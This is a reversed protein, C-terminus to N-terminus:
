NIDDLHIKHTLELEKDGTASIAMGLVFVYSLYYIWIM